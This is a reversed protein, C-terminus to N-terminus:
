LWLGNSLVGGFSTRATFHKLFDVEAYVNGSTVWNYGKNDKTRYIDAYPNRANGLDQSKTGAFNGAIDYVPIIVDERYATTFPSGESQNGFIPNDKYFVYLNEGVRIKDKITFQTNARVSYRKLYQYKSIGEQDLYGFSFFYSNKESGSSVSLNHSQMFANRPLKTM